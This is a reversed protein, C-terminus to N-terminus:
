YCREESCSAAVGAQSTLHGQWYSCSTPSSVSRYESGRCGDKIRIRISTPFYTVRNLRGAASVQARGTAAWRSGTRPQPVGEAVAWTGGDRRAAAPTSSSSLRLPDTPRARKQRRFVRIVIREASRTSEVTNDVRASGSVFRDSTPRKRSLGFGRGTSAAIRGTHGLYRGTKRV